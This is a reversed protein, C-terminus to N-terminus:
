TNVAIVFAVRRKVAAYLLPVLNRVATAVFPLLVTVLIMRYEEAVTRDAQVPRFLLLTKLCGEIFPRLVCGVCLM